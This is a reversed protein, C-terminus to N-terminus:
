GGVDYSTSGNNDAYRVRPSNNTWYDGNSSSAHGTGVWWHIEKSSPILNTFTHIKTNGYYVYVKRANSSHNDPKIVFTIATRTSASTPTFNLQYSNLDFSQVSGDRNTSNQGIDPNNQANSGGHYFGHESNNQSSSWTVYRFDTNSSAVYGFPTNNNHSINTVDETYIGFMMLANGNSGDGFADAIDYMQVYCEENSNSRSNARQYLVHESSFESRFQVVNGSNVDFRGGFYDTYTSPSAFQGTPISSWINEPISNIDTILNQTIYTFARDATKSGATARLTFSNTTDSTVDTPDGSIVGTSSNLSLGALSGSQLSYSVTDGDPDTAAVTFHNGTASEAITGLSGANTTWTPANDVNILGVSSEGALGSASTVKVKYPEQANLFSSKPAVATIQTASDVTTTTADFSASSGVFSAVAGSTFNTGTIVITQNGGAASDVETDDVSTVTPSPELTSFSGSANRGEFFGTTTNYRWQGTTSGRQATTGSAVKTGETGADVINTAGEVGRNFKVKVQAM